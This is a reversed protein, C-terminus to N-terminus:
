IKLTQLMKMYMISIDKSHSMLRFMFIVVSQICWKLGSNIQTLKIFLM